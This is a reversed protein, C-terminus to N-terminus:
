SASLQHVIIQFYATSPNSGMVSQDSLSHAVWYVVAGWVTFTCARLCVVFMLHRNTSSQIVVTASRGPIHLSDDVAVQPANFM